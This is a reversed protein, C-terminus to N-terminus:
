PKWEKPQPTRIYVPAASSVDLTDGVAIKQIGLLAVIGGLRQRDFGEDLNIPVGQSHRGLEAVGPGVPKFGKMIVNLIQEAPGVSDPIIQGLNGGAREYAAYYFEERRADKVTVIRNLDKDACHAIALLSSIGVLPLGMSWCIGKAVALGVRLGTFSGPGIALGVGEISGIKINAEDLIENLFQHLMNKNKSGPETARSLIIGDAGALGVSLSEDSSDIGLIISHL